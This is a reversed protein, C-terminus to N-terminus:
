NLFQERPWESFYDVLEIPTIVVKNSKQKYGTGLSHGWVVVMSDKSYKKIYDYVATADTVAGDESM